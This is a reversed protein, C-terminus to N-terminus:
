SENHAHERLFRLINEPKQAPEALIRLFSPKELLNMLDQLVSLHDTTNVASLVFIYKVFRSNLEDFAIPQNLVGFSIAVRKAGQNPNAHPLAVQPAIIYSDFSNRGHKQIIADVYGQTVAKDTVLPSAAISIAQEPTRAKINLQIYDPKLVDALSLEKERNTTKARFLKDNLSRRIKALLEPNDIDRGIVTMISGLTPIAYFTSSMESNVREILNYKEESTMIPNIIFCPKKKTFLESRYFTSFIMDIEDLHQDLDVYRFPKLFKINPFLNTLQLYALASSGIGNPCVIAATVLDTKRSDASYIFSILHITLFAIEADPVKGLRNEFSRLAQAVLRFIEGYEEIVQDTLPNIIPYDFQLRYYMSRFHTFIQQTVQHVDNFAIGSVDSFRQVLQNTITFIEQDLKLDDLGGISLSLTITTLYDIATRQNIGNQVLLDQSFAYENTSEINMKRAKAPLYDPKMRLRSVMFIFIYGFELMRNEVFNIHHFQATQAVKKLFSPVDVQQILNACTNLLDSENKFLEGSITKIMFSRIRNEQGELKYGSQRDYHIHLQSKLLAKELSKLDKSITSQSVQLYQQLHVLSLYDDRCALLLELFLQREETSLAYRNLSTLNKSARLTLLYNYADNPVMIYAGDTDILSQEHDSLNQNLKEIAYDIQRSTLKLQSRLRSKTLIPHQIITDIIQLQKIDLM